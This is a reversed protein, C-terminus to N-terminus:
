DEEIAMSRGDALAVAVDRPVGPISVPADYLGAPIGLREADYDSVLLGGSIVRLTLADM